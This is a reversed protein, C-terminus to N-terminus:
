ENEKLYWGLKVKSRDEITRVTRVISMKLINDNIQMKSKSAM